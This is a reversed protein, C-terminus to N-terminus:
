QIDSVHVMNTRGKRPLPMGATIFLDSGKKSVMLELLSNFDM